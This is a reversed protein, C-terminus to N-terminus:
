DRADWGSKKEDVLVGVGAATVAQTNSGIAFLTDEDVREGSGRKREGFGKAYVTEGDKVVALSLGVVGWEQRVDEVYRDLDPPLSQGRLEPGLGLVLLIAALSSASRAGRRPMM